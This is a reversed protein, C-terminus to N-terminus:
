FGITITGTTATLGGNATTEQQVGSCQDCGLVALSQGTRTPTVYITQASCNNLSFTLSGIQTLTNSVLPIIGTSEATSIVFAAKTNPTLSTSNFDTSIGNLAGTTRDFGTLEICSNPGYTVEFGIDSIRYGAPRDRGISTGSNDQVYVPVRITGTAVRTSVTGIQLKDSSTQIAAPSGTGGSPGLPAPGGSFLYNILYFVDGVNIIADGDTDGTAVVVPPPGGAFLANIMFFVDSVNVLGDNNMDGHVYSVPVRYAGRGHTFAYLYPTTPSPFTGLAESLSEVIASPFSTAEQFWSTGGDTSTLVGTDTGIWLRSGAVRDPLVWNVPLDAGISDSISTWGPSGSFASTSKFVHKFNNTFASVTAYATNGSTDKTDVAVNSVFVNSGSLPQSLTWPVGNATLASTNSGVYGDSTSAMVSNGSFFPSVNISSIFGSFTTSAATWHDASDTSRWLQTGGSWLRTSVNPDLVFPADGLTHAADTPTGSSVSTWPAAGDTISRWLNLHRQAAFVTRKGSSVGGIGVYEWDGTFTPDTLGWDYTGVKKLSGNDQTGGFALSADPYPLGHYFQTIAFGNNRAYWRMQFNLPAPPDDMCKTEVDGSGLDTRYIGGDTAVFMIQNNGANYGPDFAIVHKDEHVYKKDADTSTDGAPLHSASAQGWNAGGDDSRYLDTGGVWVQNPDAPSVAIAQAYWGYGQSDSCAGGRTGSSLLFTNLTGPTTNVVNASFSAGGNTSKFVGHLFDRRTDSSEASVAYITTQSGPAIALSTRGMGAETKVSTWTGDPATTETRANLTHYLAAQVVSDYPGRTGMSVVMEDTGDTRDTRVVIDMVGGNILTVNTPPFIKTWITGYDASRFVGTRTAAYIRYTPPAPPPNTTVRSIALKNVYWFDSNGVTPTLPAWAGASWKYIGNGRVADDNFYGEGTGAYLVDGGDVVYALSNVALNPPM